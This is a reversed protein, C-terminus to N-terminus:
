FVKGLNSCMLACWAIENWYSIWNLFYAFLFLIRNKVDHSKRQFGLELDKWREINLVWNQVCAFINLHYMRYIFYLYCNPSRLQFLLNSQMQGVHINQPSVLHLEFTCFLQKSAHWISNRMASTTRVVSLLQVLCKRM